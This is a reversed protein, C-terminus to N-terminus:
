KNVEQREYEFTRRCDRSPKQHLPRHWGCENPRFPCLVWRSCGRAACTSGLLCAQSSTEFLERSPGQWHDCHHRIHLLRQTTSSGLICNLPFRSFQTTNTMRLHILGLSLVEHVMACCSHHSLFGTNERQTLHPACSAPSNPTSSTVSM